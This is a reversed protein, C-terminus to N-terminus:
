VQLTVYSEVTESHPAGGENWQVTVQCDYLVKAGSVLPCGNSSISFTGPSASPGGTGEYVDGNDIQIDTPAAPLTSWGPTSEVYNRIEDLYQDGAAVAQNRIGDQQAVHFSAPIFLLLSALITSVIVTAVLTEVITFGRRAFSRACRNVVNM